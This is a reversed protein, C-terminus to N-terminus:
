IHAVNDVVVVRESLAGHEHLAPQRRAAEKNGITRGAVVQQCVHGHLVVQDLREMRRTCARRDAEAAEEHGDGHHEVGIESLRCDARAKCRRSCPPRPRDDRMRHGVEWSAVGCIVPQWPLVIRQDVGDMGFRLRMPRTCRGHRKSVEEALHRAM